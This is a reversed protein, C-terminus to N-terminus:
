MAVLHAVRFGASRMARSELGLLRFELFKVWSGPDKFKFM